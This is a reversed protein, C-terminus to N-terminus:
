LWTSISPRKKTIKPKPLALPVIIFVCRTRYENLKLYESYKALAEPYNKAQLAADGADRLADVDQAFAQGIGLCFAVLLVIRKM